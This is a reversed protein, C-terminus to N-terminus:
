THTRTYSHAKTEFKQGVPLIEYEYTLAFYYKTKKEKYKRHLRRLIHAFPPWHVGFDLRPIQKIREFVFARFLGGDICLPSQSSKKITLNLTPIAETATFLYVNQVFHVLCRRLLLFEYMNRAKTTKNRKEIGFRHEM